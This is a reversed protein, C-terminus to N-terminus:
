GAERHTGRVGRGGDGRDRSPLGRRSSRLRRTGHGDLALGALGLAVAGSLLWATAPPAAADHAHEILSVMAAGSAGIALTIPFHGVIWTAVAPGAARPLRRGVVDFYMWWYGFGIVLALVGTAITVASGTRGRDPRRRRRHGGRGPRRDHVPRVARGHLRQAPGRVRVDALACRAAEHGRAVRRRLRGVGRPTSRAAPGRERRGRVISVAMLLLYAGTIPLFEPRDRRRVSLWLWATVALFAAYTLAFPAGADGAADATFVALLTLIAMQVFVFLRTRGDQRGHLEIYLSGNVWATWVMGFLVAFELSAAPM